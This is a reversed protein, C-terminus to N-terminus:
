LAVHQASDRLDRVLTSVFAATQEFGKTKKAETGNLRMYRARNIEIMISM